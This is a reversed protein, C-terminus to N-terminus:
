ILDKRYYADDCYLERDFAYSLSELFERIARGNNNREITITRIAYSDFPFSRLLELELGEIDLSWYDIINPAEHKNLLDFLTISNKSVGRSSIGGMLENESFNVTGNNTYICAKETHCKRLRYLKEFQKDDPEVCIGNWHYENEMLFTNSLFAGDAAGTDLFYGGQKWNLKELAWHDQSFQSYKKKGNLYSDNLVYM